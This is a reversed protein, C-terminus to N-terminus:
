LAEIGAMLRNKENPASSGVPTIDLTQAIKLAAAVPELAADPIMPNKATFSELLGPATM